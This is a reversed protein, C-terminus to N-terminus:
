ACFINVPGNQVEGEEGKESMRDTKVAYLSVSQKKNCVFIRPDHTYTPFVHQQQQKELRPQHKLCIRVLLGRSISRFRENWIIHSCNQHAFCRVLSWANRTSKCEFQEGRVGFDSRQRTVQSRQRAGGGTSINNERGRQRGRQRDKAAGWPASERKMAGRDDGDKSTRAAAGCHLRRTGATWCSIQSSLPGTPHGLM